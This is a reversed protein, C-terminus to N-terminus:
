RCQTAKCNFHSVCCFGLWISMSEMGSKTGCFYM